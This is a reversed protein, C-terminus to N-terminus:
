ASRAAARPSGRARSPRARPRSGARRQVEAGREDNPSTAPAQTSRSRRRGTRMQASRPRATSSPEIGTANASPTRVSGAAGSRTPARPSGSSTRRRRRCRRGASSRRARAAPRPWRASAALPEAASNMAKPILPKRTWSSVAGIAIASSASVNRTEARGARCSGAVLLRRRRRASSRSGTRRRSGRRGAARGARGSGAPTRRRASPARRRQPADEPRGPEQEHEVVQLEARGDEADDGADTPADENMPATTAVRAVRRQPTPGTAIPAISSAATPLANM